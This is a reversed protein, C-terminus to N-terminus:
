GKLLDVIQGYAGASLFKECAKKILISEKDEIEVKDTSLLIKQMLKYAEYKEDATFGDGCLYLYRCVIDKIVLEKGNDKLDNGQFDKVKTDFNVKM